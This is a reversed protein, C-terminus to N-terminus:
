ATKSHRAMLRSVQAPGWRTSGGPTPIERRTLERAMANRTTFGDAALSEFVARYREGRQDANRTVTDRGKAAADATIKVGRNGGLVKGRAKAAKLAAKTRESIVEAEHEALQAYLGITLNNAEPMDTAVFKVGSEKLQYLFAVNRTLRDIKAIVLEVQYLQAADIARALQPRDKKRGSEQETFSEIITGGTRLMYDNVMQVQAELGLGSEGQKRTSVRYYAIYRKAM